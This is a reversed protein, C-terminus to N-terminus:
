VVTFGYRRTVGCGFLYDPERNPCPRRRMAAIPARKMEM